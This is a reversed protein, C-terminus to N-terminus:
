PYKDKNKEWWRQWVEVNESHPPNEVMTHLAWAALWSPSLQRIRDTEFTMEQQSYLFAAIIKVTSRDPIYALREFAKAQIEHIAPDDSFRTAEADSMAVPLGNKYANFLAANNTTLEAVIEDVYRKEGLGALDKKEEYNVNAKHVLLVDVFAKIANRESKAWAEAAKDGEPTGAFDIFMPPESLVVHLPTMGGDDQANVDAGAALLIEAVDTRRYGAAYHLPTRGGHGLHPPNKANRDKPNVEADNALLLKLVAVDSSLSAYHLPTRGDENTANIDAKHDLLLKAIELHGARAASHLPTYGGQDTANVDAGEDLLLQAISLHGTGVAIHLPTQGAHDKAAVLQRNNKLIDAVQEYVGLGTAGWISMQAGHEGLLKALKEDRCSSQAFRDMPTEGDRDKINVDAGHALLTEVLDMRCAKAAIHLAHNGQDDGANVDAGHTLLNNVTELNGSQVATYLPISKDTSNAGKTTDGAGAASLIEQGCAAYISALSLLLVATGVKVHSLLVLKM